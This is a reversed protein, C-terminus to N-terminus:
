DSLLSSVSDAIASVVRMMRNDKVLDNKVLMLMFKKTSRSEEIPASIPASASNTLPAVAAPQQPQSQVHHMQGPATAQEVTAREVAVKAEEAEAEGRRRTAEVDLAVKAQQQTYALLAREREEAQKANEETHRSVEAIQAAAALAEERQAAATALQSEKQEQAAKAADAQAAATSAAAEARLREDEEAIIRAMVGDDAALIAHTEADLVDAPSPSEPPVGEPVIEFMKAPWIQVKAKAPLEDLRIFPAPRNGPPLPHPLAPAIVIDTPLGLDASIKQLVQCLDSGSVELKRGVTVVLNPVVMLTFEKTVPEITEPAPPLSAAPSIMQALWVQVKAKDPVQEM